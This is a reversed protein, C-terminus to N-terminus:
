EAAAPLRANETRLTLRAIGFALLASLMLLACVMDSVATLALGRPLLACALVLALTLFM